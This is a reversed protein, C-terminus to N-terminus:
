QARRRQARRGTERKARFLGIALFGVLLLEVAMLALYIAPQVVPYYSLGNSRGFRYTGSLTDNWWVGERLQQWGNKVHERGADDFFPTDMFTEFVVLLCITPVVIFAACVIAQLWAGNVSSRIVDGTHFFPVPLREAWRSTSPAASAYRIAIVLLASALTWLWLFGFLSSLFPQFAAEPIANTKNKVDLGRASAAALWGFILTTVGVTDYLRSWASESLGAVTKEAAVNQQEDNSSKM